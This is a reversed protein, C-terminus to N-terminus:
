YVNSAFGAQPVSAGVRPPSAALLTILPVLIVRVHSHEVLTRFASAHAHRSPLM